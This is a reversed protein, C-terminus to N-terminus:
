LKLPITPSVRTVHEGQYLFDDLHIRCVRKKKALDLAARQFQSSEERTLSIVTRWRPLMGKEFHIILGKGTHSDLPIELWAELPELKYHKCLYRNYLCNRLFINACKRAMGWHRADHPLANLLGDTVADLKKLFDGESHARITKIDWKRFYDKIKGATGAPAMGRITSPGVAGNAVRKQMWNILEQNM